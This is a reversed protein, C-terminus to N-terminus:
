NRDNETLAKFLTDKWSNVSWEECGFVLENYEPPVDVLVFPSAASLRPGGSSVVDPTVSRGETQSLPPSVDASGAARQFSSISEELLSSRAMVSGSRSGRPVGPTVLVSQPSQSITSTTSRGLFSPSLISQPSQLHQEKDVLHKRVTLVFGSKQPINKQLAPRMALINVSEISNLDLPITLMVKCRNKPAIDELSKGEPRSCLEIVVLFKDFLLLYADKRKWEVATTAPEDTSVAHNNQSGRSFGIRSFFSHKPKWRSVFGDENLWGGVDPDLYRYLTGDALGFLNELKLLKLFNDTARKTRDIYKCTLRLNQVALNALSNSVASTVRSSSAHNQHTPSKTTSLPLHTSLPSSSGEAPVVLLRETTTSTADTSANSFAFSVSTTPPGSLSSPRVPNTVDASSAMSSAMTATSTQGQNTSDASIRLEKMWENIMPEYGTMKRLPMELLEHPPFNGHPLAKDLIARHLSPDEAANPDDQDKREEGEEEGEEDEEPKSVIKLWRKYERYFITRALLPLTQSWLSPDVVSEARHLLEGHLHAHQSYLSYADRLLTTHDNLAIPFAKNNDLVDRVITEHALILREVDRIFVEAQPIPEAVDEGVMGGAGATSRRRQEDGLGDESSKSRAHVTKLDGGKFLFQYVVRGVRRSKDQEESFRLAEDGEIANAIPKLYAQLFTTM